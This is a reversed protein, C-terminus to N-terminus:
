RARLRHTPSRRPPRSARPSRLTPPARMTAPACSSRGILALTSGGLSILDPVALAAERDNIRGMFGDNNVERVGNGQWHNQEDAHSMLALPRLAGNSQYLAKTLPQYLSGVNLVANLAGENWATALPALSPHLGFPVDSLAALSAQPLALTAGRNAAYTAYRTDTPVIMNWNDSGGFLFVGVMARFPGNAAADVARSGLGAGAIAAAAVSARVFDRRTMTMASM